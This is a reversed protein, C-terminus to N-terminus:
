NDMEIPALEAGNEEVNLNQSEKAKERRRIYVDKLFFIGITAFIVSVILEVITMVDPRFIAQLLNTFLIFFLQFLFIVLCRFNELM